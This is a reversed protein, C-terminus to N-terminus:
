KTNAMAADIAANIGTEHADHLFRGWPVHKCEVLWAYREADKRLRDAEGELELVRANLAAITDAPDEGLWQAVDIPDEPKTPM